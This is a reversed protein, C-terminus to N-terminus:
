LHKMRKSAAMNYCCTKVTHKTKEFYTKYTKAVMHKWINKCKHRSHSPSLNSQDLYDVFNPM